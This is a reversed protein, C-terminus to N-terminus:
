VSLDCCCGSQIFGVKDWHEVHLRDLEVGESGPVTDSCSGGINSSVPESRVLNITDRPIVSIRNSLTSVHSSDLSLPLAVDGVEWTRGSAGSCACGSCVSRDRGIGVIGSDDSVEWGLDGGGGPGGSVGKVAAATGVFGGDGGVVGGLGVPVVVDGDEGLVGLGVGESGGEAWWLGRGHWREWGL